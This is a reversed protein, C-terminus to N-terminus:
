YTATLATFVAFFSDNSKNLDKIADGPAFVSAGFTIILNDVIMPRYFMGLNAEAGLYKKGTGAKAVIEASEPDIERYYNFNVAANLRTTIKADVGTNLLLLGPNVFNSPEAGKNRLNPYFSAGNSLIAKGPGVQLQERQYFAFGAGAFTPNDFIGDFGTAHSNKADHDGSVYMASVKPVFWDMPYALELAAMQGSIDVEQGAVKNFEDHGFAQIFAASVNVRGIHGDAAIEAYGVDVTQKFDDHNWIVGGLVNLGLFTGLGLLDGPDQRIVNFGSVVQQRSDFTNLGTVADKQVLNFAFLNYQYRNETANGFLRIGDNVDAFVFGRFDFNFGQRGVRVNIQDYYESLIKLQVDIFGEQLTAFDQDDAFNFDAIQAAPTLRLFWEAPHFSNDGQFVDFTTLFTQRFVRQKNTGVDVPVKRYEWFSDSVGTFTFFLNQTGCIPYDGKLVNQHYPDHPVNRIYRDWSPFGVRWRDPVPFVDTGTLDNPIVPVRGAWGLPLDRSERAARKPALPGNPFKGIGRQFGIDGGPNQWNLDDDLAPDHGEAVIEEAVPGAQPEAKAGFQPPEQTAKLATAKAGSAKPLPAPGAAPAPLMETRAPKAPTSKEVEVAKPPEATAPAEVAKEAPQEPAKEAPLEAAKEAPQEIAKVKETAIPLQETPMEPAPPPLTPILTEKKSEEVAPPLQPAPVADGSAPLPAPTADPAAPPPMPVPVAVKEALDAPPAVPAAPLDTDAPPLTPPAPPNEQEEAPGGPLPAPSDGKTAPVAAVAKEAIPEPEGAKGEPRCLWLSVSLGALLLASASGFKTLPFSARM